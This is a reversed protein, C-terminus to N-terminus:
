EKFVFDDEPEHFREELGRLTRFVPYGLAAGTIVIVTNSLTFLPVSHESVSFVKELVVPVLTALIAGLGSILTVFLAQVGQFRVILFRICVFVTVMTMMYLGRDTGFVVDSLYGLIMAMVAGPVFGRELALFVVFVVAVNCM